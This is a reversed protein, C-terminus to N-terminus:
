LCREFRRVWETGAPAVSVRVFEDCAFPLIVNLEAGLDLLGEAALIDAGAALSGYGIGIQLDSFHRKLESAVRMEEAAPFRGPTGGESIRHGTFHVISPNRIPGLIEPDIGLLHCVMRM